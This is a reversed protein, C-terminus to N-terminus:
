AAPQRDGRSIFEV